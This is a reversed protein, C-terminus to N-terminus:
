CRRWHRNKLAVGLKILDGHEDVPRRVTALDNENASLGADSLGRKHPCEDVPMVIAHVDEGAGAVVEQRRLRQPRYPVHGDVLWAQVSWQLLAIAATHEGCQELEEISPQPGREHHDLVGLPRVGGREIRDLEDTPPNTVRVADQHQGIPVAIDSGVIGEPRHDALQRGLIENPHANGWQRFRRYPLNELPGAVICCFDPFQGPSVREVHRLHHPLFGSRDGCRHAVRDDGPDGLEISWRGLQDLEDRHHRPPM